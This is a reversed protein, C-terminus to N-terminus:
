VSAFQTIVSFLMPYTASFEDFLAVVIVPFVALSIFYRDAFATYSQAFGRIDAFCAVRTDPVFMFVM